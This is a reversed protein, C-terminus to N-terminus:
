KRMEYNEYTKEAKQLAQRNKIRYQCEKGIQEDLVKDFSKQSQVERLEEALLEHYDEMTPPHDFERLEILYNGVLSMNVIILSYPIM